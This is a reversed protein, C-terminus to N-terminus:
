ISKTIVQLPERNIGVGVNRLHEALVQKARLEVDRM